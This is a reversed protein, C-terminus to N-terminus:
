ATKGRRRSGDPRGGRNRREGRRSARPRRPLLPEGRFDSAEFVQRVEVEEGDEFPIRSNWAIAEQASKVRIPWFGALLEKTEAFPGDTVTRKQGAQGMDENFKGMAAVVERSPLM